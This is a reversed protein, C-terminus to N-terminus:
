AAVAADPPEAPEQAARRPLVTWALAFAAVAILAASWYAAAFGAATIIAGMLAPGIVGALNLASSNFALMTGRLQESHAAVVAQIAPIGFWTGSAWLALVLLTLPLATTSLPMLLAASGFACIALLVASRPGITTMVRGSVRSAIVGVLGVAILALGAQTTPIDYTVHIFEAFYVFLGLPGLFWVLTVSLLALGRRDRLVTGYSALYGMPEASRPRDAPCLLRVLVIAAVGALTILVFAGRWGAVTAALAGFPLGLLTALPFASSLLGMARNRARLDPMDGAYAYAAPLIIAAGLGNVARAGLLFVLSPAVVCAAASLSFIVLGLLMATRRGRRDSLPGFVPALIATPLAYASALLGVAAIPERLDDAVEPVIGVVIYTDVGVAFVAIALAWIPSRM